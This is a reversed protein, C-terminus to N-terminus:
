ADRPRAFDRVQRANAVVVKLSREALAVVVPTEFGGTAELVILKPNQEELQRVLEAVSQEDRPVSWAKGYPRVAVDLRDKSVDIGVFCDDSM